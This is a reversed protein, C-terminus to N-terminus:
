EEGKKTEEKEEREREGNSKGKRCPTQFCPSAQLRNSMRKNHSPHTPPRPTHQYFFPQSLPPLSILITVKSVTRGIGGFEAGLLPSVIIANRGFLGGFSTQLFHHNNIPCQSAFFGGGGGWCVMVDERRLLLLPVFRTTTITAPPPNFGRERKEGPRPRVQAEDWKFYFPVLFCPM